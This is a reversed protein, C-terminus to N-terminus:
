LALLGASGLEGPVRSEGSAPVSWKFSLLPATRQSPFSSPQSLSPSATPPYPPNQPSTVSCHIICLMQSVADR